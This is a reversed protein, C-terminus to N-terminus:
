SSAERQALRFSSRTRSSRRRSSGSSRPASIRAVTAGAFAVAPLGVTACTCERSALRACGSRSCRGRCPFTPCRRRTSSSRCCRGTDATTTRGSHTRGCRQMSSLWSRVCHATTTSVPCPMSRRASKPVCPLRPRSSTTRPQRISDHTSCRPSCAASRHMVCWRRGRHIAPQFSVRDPALLALLRASDRDSASHPRGCTDTSETRRGRDIRQVRRSIRAAGRGPDCRDVRHGGPVAVGVDHLWVMGGEFAFGFAREDLARLGLQDLLPLM